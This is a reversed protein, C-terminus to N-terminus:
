RTETKSRSGLIDQQHGCQKGGLVQDIDGINPVHTTTAILCYLAPPTGIEPVFTGMVERTEPIEWNHQSLLSVQAQVQIDHCCLFLSWLM